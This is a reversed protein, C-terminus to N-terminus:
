DNSNVKPNSETANTKNNKSERYWLYCNRFLFIFPISLISFFIAKSPLMFPYVLLPAFVMYLLHFYKEITRKHIHAHITLPLPFSFLIFACLFYFINEDKALFYLVMYINTTFVNICLIITLFFTSIQREHFLRSFYSYILSFASVEWAIISFMKLSNSNNAVFPSLLSVALLISPIIIGENSTSKNRLFYLFCFGVLLSNLFTAISKSYGIFLYNALPILSYFFVVGMYDKTKIM